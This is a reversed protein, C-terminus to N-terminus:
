RGQVKERFEEVQELEKDDIRRLEPQGKGHSHLLEDLKAHMAQTDRHESRQIFLTMCLTLITLITHWNFSAPDFILGGLAIALVIFFASPRALWTGADTLLHSPLRSM